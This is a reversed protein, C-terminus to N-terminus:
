WSSEDVIDKTITVADGNVVSFLSAKVLSGIGSSSDVSITIYDATEYKNAFELIAVLDQKHLSVEKM